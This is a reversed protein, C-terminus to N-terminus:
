SNIENCVHNVLCEILYKYMHYSEKLPESADYIVEGAIVPAIYIGADREDWNGNDTFLIWTGDRRDDNSEDQPRFLIIPVTSYPIVVSHIVPNNLVDSVYGRLVSVVGKEEVEEIKIM